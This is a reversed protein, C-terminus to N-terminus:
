PMTGGEHEGDGMDGENGIGHEGGMDQMHMGRGVNLEGAAHKARLEDWTLLAGQLHAAMQEAAALEAHAAAGTAMPSQIQESFVYHATTADLWEESNYDHVYWNTVKLEPHHDAYNLMDGIDDFAVSEFRGATVEYALASAFRVDNIIMNCDVCLDEGYRIDPPAASEAGQICGAALIVSLSLVLLVIVRRM